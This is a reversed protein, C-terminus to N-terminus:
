NKVEISVEFENISGDAMRMFRFVSRVRAVHLQALEYGPLVHTPSSTQERTAPPISSWAPFLKSFPSECCLSTQIM